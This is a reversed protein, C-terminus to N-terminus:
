VVIEVRSGGSKEKTVVIQKEIREKLEDVHSIIGVLRNSEVLGSLARMAQSLSEGDLSGFGEDVFMTDLRIGGAASMIEDSLGLALSLSAKFSEGGSLTKVSRETGNYHDIVDLDLGSQSRNGGEKRRKLEYQGGSMVMFRTNARAIIRDFYTTQVYTELMIKEKGTLNGNATASLARVWAYKKELAMLTESKKRINEVATKNTQLRVVVNEKQRLLVGKENALSQKKATEALVDIEVGNKLQAQLQALVSELGSIEKECDHFNKEADALAKKREGVQKELEAIRQRVEEKGSFVLEKKLANEREKGAVSQAQLRAIEVDLDKMETQLREKEKEGNPLREDITQKRAVSKELRGIEAQLSKLKEDTQTLASQLYETLNQPLEGFLEKFKSVTTKQNEALKGDLRSCLESQETMAKQAVDSARKCEKLLSETPANESKRAMCPHSTAGCVPCPVGEQLREALIGAQEDLFAQNQRNYENLRENASASLLRYKEREVDLKKRQEEQKDLADLLAVIQRKKEEAKDREATQKQLREGATALSKLEEKLALIKEAFLACKEAKEKKETEKQAFLKETLRVSERVKELEECRSIQATFTASQKELTETEAKKETEVRLRNEWEVRMERARKFAVQAKEWDSKIRAYDNAKDLKVLTEKEQKEVDAIQKALTELAREDDAIVKAFIDLVDTIPTEETQAQHFLAFYPSEEACIGGSIYQKVSSRAQECELRLASASEKLREQLNQYPQTKFIQRFIKKREDTPALLLKLFEGQAIMAIQLFQNRDIGMIGAIAGNVDGQKTIRRGDPFILLAEAKQLTVGGGRKAPREYEPNRTITYTKGNYSFTLEVETPTDADAYKSRFADTERNQGSASGYLAYTIADFITTKGAGTDGTILYLGKEGLKSFDIKVKGAYPGFASMTLQLPRM